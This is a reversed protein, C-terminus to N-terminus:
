VCSPTLKTLCMYLVSFRGQVGCCSMNHVDGGDNLDLLCVACDRDTFVADNNDRNSMNHRQEVAASSEWNSSSFLFAKTSSDVADDEFWSDDVNPNSSSSSRSSSSRPLPSGAAPLPVAMRSTSSLSPPVPMPVLTPPAPAAIVQYYLSNM